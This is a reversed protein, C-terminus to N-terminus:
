GDCRFVRIKDRPVLLKVNQGRYSIDWDAFITQEGFRIMHKYKSGVFM